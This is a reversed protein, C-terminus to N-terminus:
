MDMYGHIWLVVGVLGLTLIWTAACAGRIRCTGPRVSRPKLLLSSTSNTSMKGVSTFIFTYFSTCISIYSMYEFVRKWVPLYSHVFHHAYQSIHCLNLYKEGCQDLRCSELRQIRAWLQWIGRHEARFAWTQYGQQLLGAERLPLLRHKPLVGPLLNGLEIIRTIWIQFIACSHVIGWPPSWQADGASSWPSCYSSWPTASCLTPQSLGGLYSLKQVLNGEM